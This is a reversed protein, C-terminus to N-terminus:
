CAWGVPHESLRTLWDAFRALPGAPIADTLVSRRRVRLNKLVKFKMISDFGPSRGLREPSFGSVRLAHELTEPEFFSVHIEPIVYRWETLRNAYPAANGTTLFVLGGRRLLARIRRLEALPDLAHELVEIATVVDFQNRLRPLDQEKVLVLGDGAFAAAARSEEFGVADHGRRTRAYRVLGGSGCGYDLWRLTDHEPLLGEVTRVIGEWEYRRITREPEAAEFAYDVLPDAGGGAYYSEDYIAGHDLWPDAVFAFRCTGCRALTFDRGAYRGRVTAVTTVEGGCIKCRGAAASSGNM